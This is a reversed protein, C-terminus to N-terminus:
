LVEIIDETNTKDIPQPFVLVLLLFNNGYIVKHLM